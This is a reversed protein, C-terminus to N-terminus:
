GNKNWVIIPYVLSKNEQRRKKAESQIEAWQRKCNYSTSISSGYRQRYKYCVKDVFMGTGSEELMYGMFKDVACKLGEKFIQDKNKIRTSFTRWHSFAHVSGLDLLSRNEGPARCFGRKIPKMKKDSCIAFQTYIWAVEPHKEYLGVIFSVANEKITDDIDVVGFFDGSANKLAINYSSGCGLNHENRIYKFEIGKSTFKTAYRDIVKKTGDKSHDDVLVVELPRHKQEIICRSWSDLFSRGNHSSTLITFKSM